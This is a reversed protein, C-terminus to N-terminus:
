SNGPPASSPQMRSEQILAAIEAGLTLDGVQGFHHSRLRGEADILILTPTGQMRYARMTHPLGSRGDPRDVGVPFAIRYEHLFAKLATTTMADHHEFM